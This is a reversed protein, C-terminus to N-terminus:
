EFAVSEMEAPLLEFYEAGDLTAARRRQRGGPDTYEIRSDRWRRESMGFCANDL